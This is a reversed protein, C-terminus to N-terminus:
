PNSSGGRDDSTGNPPGANAGAIRVLERGASSSASVADAGFLVWYWLMTLFEALSEDTPTVHDVLKQLRPDRAVLLRRILDDMMSGLAYIELLLVQEDVKAPLFRKAITKAVHVFWEYGNLENLKKFVPTEDSLQLICRVLGANARTAQIWALNTQYFAEFATDGLHGSRAQVFVDDLFETLIHRTIDNKDKFYLYFAAHSAGARDYIDSVRLDHYGRQGLVEVAALKM